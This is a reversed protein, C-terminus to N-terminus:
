NLYGMNKLRQKTEENLDAEESEINIPNGKNSKWEDLFSHLEDLKEPYKESVDDAEDPLEYLKTWEDTQVLKFDTTRVATLMSKPLHSLDADPNHQLINDYDGTEDVTQLLGQSIAKTRHDYRLDYGQFQSTNAGAISLLTKMMDMHQTPKTKAQKEFEELGHTVLPVRTIGDHLLVHHGILGREGFLDGHDATIVVITDEFKSQVFDFLDGVCSDVYKIVSDYMSQLISWDTESFPLGNAIYKLRNDNMDQAFELAEQTTADVESMFESRYQKPPLYPHHTDNYHVYCFFPDNDGSLGSLKEKVHETTFFSKQNGHSSKNMTLGPGHKRINLAYKGLLFLNDLGISPVPDHVFEDYKDDLGKAKGAVTNESVGLTHYGQKSFLEPATQISDPIVDGARTGLMQHRSPHLGTMFTPVSVWTRTGHAIGHKFNRGTSQAAIRALEPTTDYQYNHLNTHDARVSDITIWLINPRSEM